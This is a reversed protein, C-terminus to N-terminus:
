GGSVPTLAAVFCSKCAFQRMRQIGWSGFLFERLEQACGILWERVQQPVDM